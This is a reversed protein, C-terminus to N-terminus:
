ILELVGFVSISKFSVISFKRRMKQTVKLLLTDDPIQFLSLLILEKVERKFLSYDVRLIKSM